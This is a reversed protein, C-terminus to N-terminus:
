YFYLHFLRGSVREGCHNNDQTYIEARANSRLLQVATFAEMTFKCHLLNIYCLSLHCLDDGKKERYSARCMIQLNNALILSMDNLCLDVDRKFDYEM